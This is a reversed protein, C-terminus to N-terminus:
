RIAPSNVQSWYADLQDRQGFAQNFELGATVAPCDVGTVLALAEWAPTPDKFISDVGGWMLNQVAIVGDTVVAPGHKMLHNIPNIVWLLRALRSQTAGSALENPTGSPATDQSASDPAAPNLLDLTSDTSSLAPATIKM